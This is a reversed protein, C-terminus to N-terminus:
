LVEILVFYSGDDKTHAHNVRYKRGAFAVAKEKIVGWNAALVDTVIKDFEDLTRPRPGELTFTFETRRTVQM